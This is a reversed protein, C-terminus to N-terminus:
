FTGTQKSLQNSHTRNRIPDYTTLLVIPKDEPPNLNTRPSILDDRNLHWTHVFAQHVSTHDYGRRRFHSSLLRGNKIFNGEKSCIRRLRLFQSYPISNKCSHNHCSEFSLYNHTDTTKCYLETELRTETKTVLIDLFPVKTESIESTFKIKAHANNLHAIFLDLETRGHSSSIM